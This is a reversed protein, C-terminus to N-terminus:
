YYSGNLSGFSGTSTASGSVNGTHVTAGVDESLYIDTINDGGITATNSGKGTATGLVIEGNSNTTGTQAYQGLYM